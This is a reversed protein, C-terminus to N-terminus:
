LQWFLAVLYYLLLELLCSMVWQEVSREVGFWRSSFVGMHPCRLGKLRCSVWWGRDRWGVSRPKLTMKSTELELRGSVQPFGWLPGCWSKLMWLRNEHNCIQLLHTYRWLEYLSFHNKSSKKHSPKPSSIMNWAWTLSCWDPTQQSYTCLFAPGTNVAVHHMVWYAFPVCAHVHTTFGLLLANSCGAAEVM